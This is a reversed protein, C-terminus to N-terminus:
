FESSWIQRLIQHLGFTQPRALLAPNRAFRESNKNRKERNAICYGDADISSKFIFIRLDAIWFGLDFIM